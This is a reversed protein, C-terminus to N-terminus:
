TCCDKHPKPLIQNQIDGIVKLYQKLVEQNNHKKAGKILINCKRIIEDKVQKSYKTDVFRQLTKIHYRDIAFIRSSLQPHGARKIIGVDDILAIQYDYLIRLWMDYDECVSMSEDFLGVANFVKKNILVSSAAIKCTSINQLFCEGEPKKLSKPYKIKKGDRIWRENTHSFMLNEDKNHLLVQKETKDKLWIDDSDLFALWSNRAKKIGINRAHSVGLNETRIVKIGHIKELIDQTNDTSGDDVVIIEDINYTQNLVCNIADNVM